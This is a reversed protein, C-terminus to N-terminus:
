MFQVYSPKEGQDLIVMEGRKFLSNLGSVNHLKLRDDEYKSETQGM